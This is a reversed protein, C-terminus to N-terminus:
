FYNVLYSFTSFLFFGLSIIWYSRGSAVIKTPLTWRSVLCLSSLLKNEFYPFTYFIHNREIGTSALLIPLFALWKNFFYMSPALTIFAYIRNSFYYDTYSAQLSFPETNLYSVNLTVGHLYFSVSVYDETNTPLKDCSIWYCCSLSWKEAIPFIIETLTM